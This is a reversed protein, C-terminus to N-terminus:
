DRPYSKEIRFYKTIQPNAAEITAALETARAPAPSPDDDVLLTVDEEPLIGV